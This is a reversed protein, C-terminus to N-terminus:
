GGGSDNLAVSIDEWVRWYENLFEAGHRRYLRQAVVNGQSVNVCVRRAKQEVFWRALIRILDSAIGRGRREAVVDIWELEGDCGHRRTLHGAILGVIKEGESAVYVVRPALARQPHHTGEMYGRMRANWYAETEWEAARIRAM